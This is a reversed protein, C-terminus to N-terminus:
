LWFRTRYWAWIAEGAFLYILAAAALYPGFPIKSQWKRGKILILTLGVVSGLFSAGVLTFLVSPWGLFAGLAGLLKVDGFGMAEKRFVAEGLIAVLWLLGFGLCLGTGAALFGRLMSTEGHLSPVLASILLGAVIGGVTIRDPLIYYDLDIFTGVVLGSVLLWYVPVRPDLADGLPFAFKWWVLAFLVGTIAEVLPYRGAIPAGCRRCRGRLLLWSLVPINDHWAIPRMCKPCFSRRPRNISMERPIRYICVNLFSGISAGLMAAVALWYLDFNM